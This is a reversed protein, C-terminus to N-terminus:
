EKFQKPKRFAMLTYLLVFIIIVVTPIFIVWVPLCLGGGLNSQIISYNIFAFTINMLLLSIFMLVKLKQICEKRREDTSFWYERNPINVFRVPIKSVLLPIIMLVGNLILLMSYWTIFFSNKSSWRDPKGSIDFHSAVKDPLYGYSSWGQWILILISILWAYKAISRM